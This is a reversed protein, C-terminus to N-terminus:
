NTVSSRDIRVGPGMTTTLTVSRVYQGKASSPRARLITDFLTQVNEVLRDEDFSIRGVPANVNGNRDARYEVRGAKAEAVARAVDPTVTGSKPNPMLGRPGLIRGLRGVVSMMDPAAIAVDFDTWGGNIREALDDAGVVDAGAAEAAAAQEGKAFVVVRITKGLGHPLMVTGRIQQDAQRPDVGLRMAMEVTQDFKPTPMEKLLSVADEISYQARRDIRSLASKYRKGNRGAM